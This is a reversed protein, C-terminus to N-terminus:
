PALVEPAEKWIQELMNRLAKTPGSWREQPTWRLASFAEAFSEARLSSRQVARGRKRGAAYFSTSESLGEALIKATALDFGDGTILPMNSRLIQRVKAFGASGHFPNELHQMVLHGFEHTAVAALPATGLPHWSSRESSATYYYLKEPNNFWVSNLMVGGGGAQAWTDSRLRGVVLHSIDIGPFAGHLAEVEQSAAEIARMDQIRGPTESRAGFHANVWSKWEAVDKFKPYEPEVVQGPSAFAAALNREPRANWPKVGVQQEIERPVFKTRTGGPGQGLKSLVERYRQIDSIQEAPYSALPFIHSSIRAGPRKKGLEIRLRTLDNDGWPQNVASVQKNVNADIPTVIVSDLQRYSFLGKEKVAAEFLQAYGVGRPNVDTQPNLGYHKWLEAPAQKAVIDIQNDRVGALQHWHWVMARRGDPFTAEGPKYGEFAAMDRKEITERLQDREAVLRDRVPGPQQIDGAPPDRRNYPDVFTSGGSPTGRQHGRVQVVEALGLEHARRQKEADVVGTGQCTTCTSVLGERKNILISGTGKCRRCVAQGPELSKSSASDTWRGGADRAQAPDFEPEGEQLKAGKGDPPWGEPPLPGEGTKDWLAALTWYDELLAQEDHWATDANDWATV